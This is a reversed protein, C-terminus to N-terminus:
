WGKFETPRRELFSAVGEKSDETGTVLEVYLAEEEFMTARDTDLSRNLLKKAFGITKTPGSALRAAWEDATAVLEAAPVVKNVLGIREADTASLDDGFFVLEKAKQLGILRPLLYTGGGDPILGRRVFVQIIRANDAAVVLDSALVMAAGGGAATGNLACLIPKECDLMASILRQIGTRIMGAADGAVREPAGEPKPPPTARGARLDAGTCFHKEGAASLVIARVDFSGNAASLHEIMRNRLAPTIANGADPRNITLRLVGDRTEALLEQDVDVDSVTM